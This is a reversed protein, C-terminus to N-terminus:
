SRVFRFCSLGLCIQLKCWALLSYAIFNRHTQGLMRAELLTNLVLKATAQGSYDVGHGPIDALAWSMEGRSDTFFLAIPLM